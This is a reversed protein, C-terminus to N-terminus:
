YKNKTNVEIEALTNNIRFFFIILECWIRWLINGFIIIALGIMPGAPMPSFPNNDKFITILGGFTILIAVMAYVIKIIHFTIMIRFSLFDNWNFSKKRSTVHVNLQQEM